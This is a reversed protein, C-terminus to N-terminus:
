RSINAGYNNREFYESPKAIDTEYIEAEVWLTNINVITFLKKNPELQEGISVNSETIVGNIPSKIPFYNNLNGDGQLVSEYYDLLKGPQM